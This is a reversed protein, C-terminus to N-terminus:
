SKLVSAKPTKESKQSVSLRTVPFYPRTPNNLQNAKYRLIWGPILQLFSCILNICGDQLWGTGCIAWCFAFGVVLISWIGMEVFCFHLPWVTKSRAILNSYLEHTVMYHFFEQFYHKLIAIWVGMAHIILIISNCSIILWQLDKQCGKRLVRKRIYTQHFVIGHVTRRDM